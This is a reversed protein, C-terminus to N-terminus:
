HRSFRYLFDELRLTQIGASRAKELQEPNNYGWEALLCRIGLDNIKLLTDVQDDIFYFHRPSISNRSLLESIIQKKSRRVDAFYMNDRVFQIRRNELLIRVYKLKKTTIIFLRDLNPYSRLFSSVGKYFPNLSVWREQQSGSFNEREEYFLRFFLDRLRENKDTFRDFDEQTSISAHEAIALHIYVYDLGYRIFNRMRRSEQTWVPELEELDVIRDKGCYEAYANYGVVLCEAISDALVGDFDLALYDRTADFRNSM